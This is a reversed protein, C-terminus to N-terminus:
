LLEDPVDIDCGFVRTVYCRMAAVLLTPGYATYAVINGYDIIAGACWGGMSSERTDIGEREIIPGGQSWDTSPSRIEYNDGCGGPMLNIAVYRTLPRVYSQGYDQEVMALPDSGIAREVAWDLAPGILDATKVKM